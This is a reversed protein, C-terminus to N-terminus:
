AFLAKLCVCAAVSTELSSVLFTTLISFHKKMDTGLVEDTLTCRWLETQERSLNQMASAVHVM